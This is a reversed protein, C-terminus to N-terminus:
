VEFGPTDFDNVREPARIPSLGTLAQVGAGLTEPSGLRIGPLRAMHIVALELSLQSVGLVEHLSRATDVGDVLLRSGELHGKKDEVIERRVTVPQRGETEFTMTVATEIAHGGRAHRAAWQMPTPMPVITPLQVKSGDPLEYDNVLKAFHEPEGANIPVKETVAFTVAKAISSKGAGNQGEILLVDPQVDIVMSAPCTGDELCLPHLGGFQTIEARKVRWIRATDTRERIKVEPPDFPIDLWTIFAEATSADGRALPRAFLNHGPTGPSFYALAHRAQKAAIVFDTGDALRVAQGAIIAQILEEATLRIAELPQAEHPVDAAM